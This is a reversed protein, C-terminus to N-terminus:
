LDKFFAWIEDCANIEQSTKGILWEGLYQNGGPWTHGGGEIRYLVLASELECNSYTDISVSTGDNHIDPVTVTPLKDVCKNKNKWFDVYDDTSIIKGRVKKFVEVEGGNYPVIKDDTGNMIMVAVPNTPNCKPLYNTSLTATVIAAGKFVDSRDCILRSSMFGGNSMGTTFIKGSDIMYDKKLQDIIAIIFGVDDINEEWAREGELIRGDNWNKDIGEPYVVIFGDKDALDNFRGFTLSPTKKATGGGGHINFLIPLAKNMQEKPPFHVLYQREYGGWDMTFLNGDDSIEQNTMSGCSQLFYTIIVSVLVISVKLKM